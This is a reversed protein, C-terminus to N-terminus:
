MQWSPCLRGKGRSSRFSMPPNLDFTPVHGHAIDCSIGEFFFAELQLITSSIQQVKINAAIILPDLWRLRSSELVDKKRRSGSVKWGIGTWSGILWTYHDQFTSRLRGCRALLM